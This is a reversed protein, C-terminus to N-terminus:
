HLAARLARAHVHWPRARAEYSRVLPFELLAARSPTLKTTTTVIKRLAPGFTSGSPNKTSALVWRSRPPVSEARSGHPDSVRTRYCAITIKLSHWKELLPSFHPVWGTDRM